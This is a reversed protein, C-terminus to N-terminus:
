GCRDPLVSVGVPLIEIGDDIPVQDGFGHEQSCWGGALGCQSAFEGDCVLGHPHRFVSTFVPVLLLAIFTERKLLEYFYGVDVTLLFFRQDASGILHHEDIRVSRGREHERHVIMAAYMRSQDFDGCCCSSAVVQEEQAVRIDGVIVRPIAGPVGVAVDELSLGLGIQQLSLDREDRQSSGEFGSHLRDGVHELFEDIMLQHLRDRGGRRNVHYQALSVLDTERDISLDLEDAIEAMLQKWDVFGAAHSIGAGVFLAAAGDRVARTYEKLFSKQTTANM